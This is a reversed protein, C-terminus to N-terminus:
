KKKKVTLLKIEKVMGKPIVFTCNFNDSEEDKAMALLVSDESEKILYGVTSILHPSNTTEEYLEWGNSSVADLWEVLILPFDKPKM